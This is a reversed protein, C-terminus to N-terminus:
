LGDNNNGESAEFSNEDNILHLRRLLRETQLSIEIGIITIIM